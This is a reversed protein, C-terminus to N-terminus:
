PPLVANGATVWHNSLTKARAQHAAHIRAARITTPMTQFSTSCKVRRVRERGPAKAVPMVSM